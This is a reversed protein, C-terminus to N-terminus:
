KKFEVKSVTIIQKDDKKSVVGVVKGDTPETCITKHHEKHSKPDFYYVVDKGDQKVVIVTACAKDVKLDCKGCTIKGELTVEKEEAVSTMTFACLVALCLCLSLALRM